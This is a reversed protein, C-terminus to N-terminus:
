QKIENIIDRPLFLFDVFLKWALIVLVASGQIFFGYFFGATDVLFNEGLKANELYQAIPNNSLPFPPVQSGARDKKERTSNKDDEIANMTKEFTDKSIMGEQFAQKITDKLADLSQGTEIKHKLAHVDLGKKKRLREKSVEFEEKKKEIVM